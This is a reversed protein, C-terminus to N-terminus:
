RTKPNFQYDRWKSPNGQKEAWEVTSSIYDIPADFWVYLVKGEADPLPVPIGWDIDRTIPRDTLGEQFWGSCFERVNSKWGSKSQQWVELQKQFESLRFYWHKTTCLEPASGCIKCKPSILQEPELWRGCSECRGGRAGERHCHPM